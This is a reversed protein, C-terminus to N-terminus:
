HLLEMLRYLQKNKKITAGIQQAISSKIMSTETGTDLTLQVAHYNYFVTLHPSQKTDTPPLNVRNDKSCFQDDPEPESDSQDVM